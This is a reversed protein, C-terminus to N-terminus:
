LKLLLVTDNKDWNALRQQVGTEDPEVIGLTRIGLKVDSSVENIESERKRILICRTCIRDFDKPYELTRSKAWNM